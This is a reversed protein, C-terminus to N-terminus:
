GIKNKANIKRFNLWMDFLGLGIIFLLIIQQIAILTYLFLRLFRPFRKKEFFYSVIAIGQFFYVIMLVLLGNLGVIKFFSGPILLLGGCGILVWILYEPAKWLNLAGFDPYFVGRRKFFPRAMLLNSWAVLLTSVAVMAPIIRMLGQKIQDLSNSFRIIFDQSAGMSEYLAMTLELNRTIYDSVLAYISTSAINSYLALGLLGALLVGGCTFLITKEVSLNMEFFESLLFGLLLMEMFFVIDVSLSGLLVIMIALAVAPIILGTKRGLKSRYFLIPLPLFLSCFFGILPMFVSVTIISLTIVVGTLIDKPVGRLEMLPM